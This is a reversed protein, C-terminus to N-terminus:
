SGAAGFGPLALGNALHGALLADLLAALHPHAGIAAVHRPTSLSKALDVRVAGSAGARMAGAAAAVTDADIADVLPAATPPVYDVAYVLTDQYFIKRNEALGYYTVEGPRRERVGFACGYPLLMEAEEPYVSNRGLILAGRTGAPVRVVFACCRSFEDLFPGFDLWADMTTSNFVWQPEVDGVRLGYNTVARPSLTRSPTDGGDEGRDDDPACCSSSLPPTGGTDPAGFYLFRAVKYVYADSTLAPAGLLAKQILAAQALPDNDQDTAGDRAHNDVHRDQQGSQTSGTGFFRDLLALNIPGSAPGTYARLARRTRRPLARIYADHAVVDSQSVSFRPRPFRMPVGAALSTRDIPGMATAALRGAMAQRAADPGNPLVGAAVARAREAPGALVLSKYLNGSLHMRLSARMFAEILRRARVRAHIPTSQDRSARSLADLLSSPGTFAVADFVVVDRLPAPQRRSVDVFDIDWRSTQLVVVHRSPSIADLRVGVFQTDFHDDIIGLRLSQRAATEAVAAAVSSAIRSVANSPGWVDVHWEVAEARYPVGVLANYARLGGVVAAAFPRVGQLAKVVSDSLVRAVYVAYRQRQLASASSLSQRPRDNADM